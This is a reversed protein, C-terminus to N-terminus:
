LPEIDAEIEDIIAILDVAPARQEALWTLFETKNFEELEERDITVQIKGNPLKVLRILGASKLARYEDPDIIPM